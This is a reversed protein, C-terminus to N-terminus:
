RFAKELGTKLEEANMVPTFQVAADMNMFFPEVISPIQSSEKMDFVFMATRMGGDAFFYSAEPRLSEMTAVMIKPLTGDKIARNAAAVPMSVKLMTRM